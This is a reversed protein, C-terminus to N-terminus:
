RGGGWGGGGGGPKRRPTLGGGGHHAGVGPVAPVGELVASPRGRLRGGDQTQRRRGAAEALGGLLPGDVPRLGVGAAAHLSGAGFSGSTPRAKLPTELCRASTQRAQSFVKRRSSFDKGVLQAAQAARPWILQRLSQFKKLPIASSNLTYATQNLDISSLM